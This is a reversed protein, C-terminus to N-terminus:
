CDGRDRDDARAEQKREMEEAAQMIDAALAMRERQVRELERAAETAQWDALFARYQQDLQPAIIQGEGDATKRYIPPVTQGKEQWKKRLANRWRIFRDYLQEEWEEDADPYAAKVLPAVYRKALAVAHELALKDKEQPTPEKPEAPQEKPKTVSAVIGPVDVSAEPSQAKPQVQRFLKAVGEPSFDTGMKCSRSKLNAPIKEGAPFGSTDVLEYVYYEPMTKTAHHVYTVAGGKQKQELLEVGDARLAQAFSDEDWAQVAARRIRERLDDQWIYKEPELVPARGELEADEAEARNRERIRENAARRERVSQSVREPAKGPEDLTFYEGCIEDVLRRFHPHYYVRSDVGKHDSLRVDNTLIHLHLKHGKGDAQVFVASQCDPANAEAIRCGIELATLQDAEDDPDLENPSFSVVCRNVQIKHRADMRDWLPKMQEEFRVTVDPLMNVGASYLNRCVRGNHGWGHGRAYLIADAGYATRTIRSYPM